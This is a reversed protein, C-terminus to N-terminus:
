KGLFGGDVPIVAGSIYAAADSALFVTIGDLDEPKGWRGMPIRATVDRYHEPNLRKMDATLATEFYGPAIANVTVGKSSWENSLAKTLQAIAGKSAAYAPIMTAANWCTMSAVNIIRGYGQELMIRGIEQSVFFVANLNVEIISRWKEEPFEAAPCRHQLGACNILIDVRGGLKELAEKVMGRMSGMDCLDAQCWHVPVGTGGLKAAADKIHDQVGVVLVEAGAEHLARAMSYGLGRSGGTVIAKKGEISFNVM